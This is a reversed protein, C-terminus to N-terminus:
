IFIHIHIYIYIYLFDANVVRVERITVLDRVYDRETNLIENLVKMRKLDKQSSHLYAIYLLRMPKRKGGRWVQPESGEESIFNKSEEKKPQYKVTIEGASHSEAM